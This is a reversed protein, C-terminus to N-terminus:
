NATDPQQWIRIYEIEFDVPLDAKGPIGHWPFTESDVWIWLPNKLVWKDGLEEKTVGTILEGDAYFKLYNENWECGYVHFDGAVRWGLQNKEQWVRKTGNKSNAWDILTCLFETELHKKQKQAPAGIFEFVDLESGRGTMWFSSTISADAAKCRIEMYGYHFQKKSIVAATTINEYARGDTAKSGSRDNKDSFEFDPDWRTELKLKGDEVRVNRTSFQSPARGIWNSRYEGGAGQVLWKSTDLKKSEFEDSVDNILVWEGANAPDSAPYVASKGFCGMGLLLWALCVSATRKKYNAM